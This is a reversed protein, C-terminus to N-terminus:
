LKAYSNRFFFRVTSGRKVLNTLNDEEGPANEEDRGRKTGWTRKRMGPKGRRTSFRSVPASGGFVTREEDEESGVKEDNMTMPAPSASRPIDPDM